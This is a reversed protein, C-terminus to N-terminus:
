AFSLVGGGWGRPGEGEQDETVLITETFYINLSFNYFSYNLRKIKIKRYNKINEKKEVPEEQACRCSIFYKLIFLDIYWYSLLHFNIQNIVLKDHM